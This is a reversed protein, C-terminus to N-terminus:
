SLLPASFHCPKSHSLDHIRSGESPLAYGLAYWASCCNLAPREIFVFPLVVSLQTNLLISVTWMCLQNKRVELLLYLRVGVNLKGM